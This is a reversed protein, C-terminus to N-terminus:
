VVKITVSKKVTEAGLGFTFTLKWDGKVTPSVLAALGWHHNDLETAECLGHMEHDGKAISWTPNVPQFESGDNMWVDLVVFRTEGLEFIKSDAIM